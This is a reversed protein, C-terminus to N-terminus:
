AATRPNLYFDCQLYAESQCVDRLRRGGLVMRYRYAACTIMESQDSIPRYRLFPCLRSLHADIRLASGSGNLREWMRWPDVPETTLRIDVYEIGSAKLQALLDRNRGSLSVCKRASCAFPIDNLDACLEVLSNREKIMRTAFYILIGAFQRTVAADLCAMPSRALTLGNRVGEMALAQPFQCVLIEGRGTPSIM